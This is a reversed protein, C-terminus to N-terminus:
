ICFDEDEITIYPIIYTLMMYMCVCVCVCIYIYICHINYMYTSVYKNSLLLNKTYKNYMNIMKQNVLIRSQKCLLIYSM